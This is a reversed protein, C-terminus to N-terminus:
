RLLGTLLRSLPYGACVLILLYPGLHVAWTIARRIRKRRHHRVLRRANTQINNMHTTMTTM